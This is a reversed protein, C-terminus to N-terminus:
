EEASANIRTALERAEKESVSVGVHIRGASIEEAVKPASILRGEIVIALQRGKYKRTVEAFTERGKETFTIDILPRGLAPYEGLRASAIATHDILPRKQVHLIREVKQNRSSTFIDTMEETDKAATDQVLRIQFPSKASEAAALGFALLGFTLIRITSKM